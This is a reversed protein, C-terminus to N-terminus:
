PAAARTTFINSSEPLVASMNSIGPFSASRIEGVSVGRERVRETLPIICGCVYNTLCKWLLKHLNTEAIQSIIRTNAAIHYLKRYCVVIFAHTNDFFVYM